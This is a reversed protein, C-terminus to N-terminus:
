AAVESELEAAIRAVTQDSCGINEAIGKFSQGRALSQEVVLRTETPTLRVRRIGKVAIEVAIEDVIGDEPIAWDTEIVAVRRVCSGTYTGERWQNYAHKCLGRAHVKDDCDYSKCIAKPENARCEANCYRRVQWKSASEGKRKSLSEGCTLCNRQLETM